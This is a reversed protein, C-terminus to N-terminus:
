RSKRGRQKKQQSYKKWLELDFEAININNAECYEVFRKELELYRKQSPTSKPAKSDLNERIWSLIHTDLVACKQNPRSHLIFFRSTKPGIGYITELDETTVKSLDFGSDILGSWATALRNYQGIKVRRMEEELRGERRLRHVYQLPSSKSDKLLERLKDAQQQADKGAVVTAFLLFLELQHTDRNFNTINNPDIM